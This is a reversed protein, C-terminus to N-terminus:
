SVKKGKKPPPNVESADVSLQHVKDFRQLGIKVVPVIAAPLLSEDEPGVGINAGRIGFEMYMGWIGDHLGQHKLLAEVVEKYTFTYQKVEAM